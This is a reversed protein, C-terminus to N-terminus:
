GKSSLVYEGAVRAREMRAATAPLDRKLDELGEVASRFAAEVDAQRELPRVEAAVGAATAEEEASVRAAQRAGQLAAADGALGARAAHDWRAAAQRPASRKLAAIESLLDEEERVLADIRQRRRPDFPEYHDHSQVGEQNQQSQRSQPHPQDASSSSSSASNLLM